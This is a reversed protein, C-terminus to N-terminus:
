QYKTYHELMIQYVRDKLKEVDESKLGKTPIPELFHIPVSHPWAYFGGKAPLIEKTHFIVAPLVPKQTKIAMTFAGDYFPQLPRSTKNRTGEPYLILHMGDELVRKMEILSKRRNQPDKRDVLISGSSYILGFIPIRALEAKALTKSAGPVSPTSVLIDVFSNHNCVVVYNEGEKFNSLGKRRIPCFVGPLYVGMWIRYWKLIASAQKKEDRITYHCIATPITVLLITIVFWLLMWVAFFGGTIRKFINM